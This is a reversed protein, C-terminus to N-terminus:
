VAPSRRVGQHLKCFIWPSMSCSFAAMASSLPVVPALLFVDKNMEVLLIKLVREMSSLSAFSFLPSPPMWWDLTQDSSPDAASVARCRPRPSRRAASCEPPGDDRAYALGVCLGCSWGCAHRRKLRWWVWVVSLCVSLCVRVGACAVVVMVAVVM